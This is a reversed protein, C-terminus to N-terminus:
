RIIRATRPPPLWPLLLAYPPETERLCQSFQDFLAPVKACALEREVRMRSVLVEVAPLVRGDGAASLAQAFDQTRAEHVTLDQIKGLADQLKKLRQVVSRAEPMLDALIEMIYRLQKCEIRLSHLAAADTRDQLRCGQELVTRCKKAVRTRALSLVPESGRRGVGLGTDDDICARWRQVAQDYDGSGMVGVLTRHAAERERAAFEFLPTVDEALAGTLMSRYDGQQQLYVDLDRLANTSKGLWSLRKRLRVAPERAFVDPLQGLFSRARRVAVRFDHLFETDTDDLIGEENGRATRYQARLMSRVAEAATMSATLRVKPVSAARRPDLGLAKIAQRYRSGDRAHVGRTEWWECVERFFRNYGRVRRVTVCGGLRATRKGDSAEDDSLSVQLVTKQEGDRRSWTRVESRVSFLRLLARNKTLPVLEDRLGGPPLGDAFVPLGDLEIPRREDPRDLCELHLMGESSRLARSQAFLRGDFTDLYVAERSRRPGEHLEHDHRFERLLRQGPRGQPVDFMAESTGSTTSLTM